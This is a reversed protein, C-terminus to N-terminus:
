LIQEWDGGLATWTDLATMEVQPAAGTEVVISCAGSSRDANMNKANDVTKRRM